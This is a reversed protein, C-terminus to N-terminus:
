NCASDVAVKRVGNVESIYVTDWLQPGLVSGKNPSM